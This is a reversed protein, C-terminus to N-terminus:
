PGPEGTRSRQDMELGLGSFCLYSVLVVMPQEEPGRPHRAKLKEAFVIDDENATPRPRCEGPLALGASCQVGM